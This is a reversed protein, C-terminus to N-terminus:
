PQSRACDPYRDGPPCATYESETVTRWGAQDGDDLKLSWTEPWEHYAQYCYLAQGCAETDVQESLRLLNAIRAQDALHLIAHVVAKLLWGLSQSEETMHDYASDAIVRATREDGYIPRDGTM